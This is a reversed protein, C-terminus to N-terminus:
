ILSRTAIYGSREWAKSHRSDLAHKKRDVIKTFLQMRRASLPVCCSENKCIFGSSSTKVSKAQLDSKGSVKIRTADLYQANKLSSLSISFYSYSYFYFYFCDECRLRQSFKKFDSVEVLFFCNFFYAKWELPQPRFLFNSRKLKWCSITQPLNLRQLQLTAPFLLEISKYLIKILISITWLYIIILEFTFDIKINESINLLNFNIRM